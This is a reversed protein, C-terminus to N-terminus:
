DAVAEDGLVRAVILGPFLSNIQTPLRANHQGLPLHHLLIRMSKLLQLNSLLLLKQIQTRRIEAAYDIPDFFFSQSCAAFFDVFQFHHLFLSCFGVAVEDVVQVLEYAYM